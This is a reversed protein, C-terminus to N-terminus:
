GEKEHYSLKSEEEGTGEPVVDVTGFSSDDLLRMYEWDERKELKSAFYQRLRTFTPRESPDDHWCNVMMKRMEKCTGPDKLRHGAKLSMYLTHLPTNRGYPVEGLTAIEWLVVGYSWVDTLENFIMSGHNEAVPLTEPAMWMYPLANHNQHRYYGQFTTLERALGFDAIKLTNSETLLINRAALDRHVVSYRSLYEMGAAIQHSFSIFLTVLSQVRSDQQLNAYDAEVESNISMDKVKTRNFSSQQVDVGLPDHKAGPVNTLNNGTTVKTPSPQMKHNFYACEEAQITSPQTKLQTLLLNGPSGYASSYARLWDILSGKVCHELLIIPPGENDVCVGILNVLYPSRGQCVQFMIRAESIMDQLCESSDFMGDKPMKLAVRQSGTSTAHYHGAYVQGFAGKGIRSGFTVDCRPISWHELDAPSLFRFPTLHTRNANWSQLTAQAEASSYTHAYCAPPPLMGGVHGHSGSHTPAHSYRLSQRSGASWGMPTSPSILNSDVNGNNNKALSHRLKTNRKWRVYMVVMVLLLLAAIPGAVSAALAVGAENNGADGILGNRGTVGKLSTTTTTAFPLSSTVNRPRATQQGDSHATIVTGLINEVEPVPKSPTTGVSMTGLAADLSPTASTLSMETSILEVSSSTSIEPVRQDPSLPSLPNANTVNGVLSCNEASIKETEPKLVKLKEITLNVTSTWSDSIRVATCTLWMKNEVFKRWTDFLGPPKNDEVGAYKGNFFSYLYYAHITLTPGDVKLTPWLYNRNAFYGHGVLDVRNTVNLVTDSFTWTFFYDDASHECSLSCEVACNCDWNQLECNTHRKVADMQPCKKSSLVARNATTGMGSSGQLMDEDDSIPRKNWSGKVTVNFVSLPQADATTCCVWLGSDQPLAASISLYRTHGITTYETQGQEQSVWLIKGAVLVRHSSTDVGPAPLDHRVEAQTSGFMAVSSTDCSSASSQTSNELLGNGSGINTAAAAAAAAAAASATPIHVWRYADHFDGRYVDDWKKCRLEKGQREPITVQKIDSRGLATATTIAASSVLLVVAVLSAPIYIKPQPGWPHRSSAEVASLPETAVKRIM